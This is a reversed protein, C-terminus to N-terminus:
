PWPPGRQRLRGRACAATCSTLQGRLRPARERPWPHGRVLAEAAALKGRLRRGGRGRGRHRPHRERCVQHPVVLPLNRERAPSGQERQTSVQDMCSGLARIQPTSAPERAIIQQPHKSETHCCLTTRPATRRSDTLRNTEEGHTSATTATGTQSIWSYTLSQATNHTCDERPLLPSNTNRAADPPPPAQRDVHYYFGADNLEVKRIM